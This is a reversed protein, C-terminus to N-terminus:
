IVKAEDRLKGVLEAVSSVMIGAERKPPESVKV